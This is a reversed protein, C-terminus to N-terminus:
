ADPLGTCVMQPDALHGHQLYHALWEGLLLNLQAKEDPLHMRQNPYGYRPLLCRCGEAAIVEAMRADHYVRVQMHSAPLWDLQRSEQLDVRTTWPGDGLWGLQLESTMGRGALRVHRQGSAAQRWHPLLRQLRLYNAECSAHLGPLDVRYSGRILVM